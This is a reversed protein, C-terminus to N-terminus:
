GAGIYVEGFGVGVNITGVSQTTVGGTVSQTASKSRPADRAANGRLAHSRDDFDFSRLSRWSRCPRAPGPKITGVSQSTVNLILLDCAGGAGVPDLRIQNKYSSAFGAIKQDLFFGM